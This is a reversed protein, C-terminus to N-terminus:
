YFDYNFALAVMEITCLLTGQSSSCTNVRILASLLLDTETVRQKYEEWSKGTVVKVTGAWVACRGWRSEEGNSQRASLGERRNRRGPGERVGECCHEKPRFAKGWTDMPHRVWWRLDKDLLWRRLTKDMVIYFHLLKGSDLFTIGKQQEIKEGYDKGGNSM